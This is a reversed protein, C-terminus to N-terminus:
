RLAKNTRIIALVSFLLWDDNIGSFITTDNCCWFSVNLERRLQQFSYEYNYHTRSLPLSSVCRHAFSKRSPFRTIVPAHKDLLSSLTTNYAILLSGLSKPPNTILRINLTCVTFNTQSPNLEIDGALLLFALLFPSRCHLTRTRTFLLFFPSPMCTLYSHEQRANHYLFTDSHHACRLHSTAM